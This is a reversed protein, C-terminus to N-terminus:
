KNSIYKYFYINKEIKTETKLLSFLRQSYDNDESFNVEPFKVQLALEKKVPSLHNPTRYYVNNEEYWRGYDKSIYWQRENTGDFSIIGQTGICDPNNWKIKSVILEVYDDSVDDDDDIFCIYEGEAMELLKNRKKGITMERNDCFSLIEVERCIQKLHHREIQETLKKMLYKFKDKREEITCILISLLYNTPPTV